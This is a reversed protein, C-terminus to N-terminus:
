QFKREQHVVAPPQSRADEADSLRGIMYSTRAVGVLALVYSLVLAAISWARDLPSCVTTAGGCDTAVISIDLLLIQGVILWPFALFFALLGWAWCFVSTPRLLNIKALLGLMIGIAMLVAAIGFVLLWIALDIRFHGPDSDDLNVAGIYIAGAGIIGLALGVLGSVLYQVARTFSEM